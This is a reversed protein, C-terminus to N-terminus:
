AQAPATGTSGRGPHASPLHGSVVAGLLEVAAAVILSDLLGHFFMAQPTSSFADWFQTPAGSPSPIEGTITALFFRITWGMVVTYYFLIATAVWAVLFEGGGNSAAIRPFRWINGTGIAMCLM